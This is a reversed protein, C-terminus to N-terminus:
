LTEKLDTDAARREKGPQPCPLPPRPVRPVTHGQFAEGGPSLSVSLEPPVLAVLTRSGPAVQPDRAGAMGGAAGAERHEPSKLRVSGGPLRPGWALGPLYSLGRWWGWRCGRGQLWGTHCSPGRERGSCARFGM